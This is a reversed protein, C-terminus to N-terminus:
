SGVARSLALKPEEIPKAEAYGGEIVTLTAGSANTLDLAETEIDDAERPLPLGRRVMEDKLILRVKKLGNHELGSGENYAKLQKRLKRYATDVEEDQLHRVKM